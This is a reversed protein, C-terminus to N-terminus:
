MAGDRLHICVSYVGRMLNSKFGRCRLDDLCNYKIKYKARLVKAWLASQDSIIEWAIKLLFANSTLRASKFELGGMNKSLLVQRWLVVMVKQHTEDSSWIFNGCIIDIEDYTSRLLFSTQMCYTPITFLISQALTVRGTLSLKSSPWNM